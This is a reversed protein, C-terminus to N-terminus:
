GTRRRLLWVAAGLALVALAVYLGAEIFQFTWFRSAPQYSIWRQGATTGAGLVWDGFHGTM